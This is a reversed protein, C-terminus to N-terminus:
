RATERSVVARGVTVAQDHQNRCWVEYAEEDPAVGQADNSPEAGCTLRDGPRVAAILKYELRRLRGQWGLDQVLYRTIFAASITGHAITSGFPTTRAFDPDVHLPNFDGSVEAYADIHAQTMHVPWDSM